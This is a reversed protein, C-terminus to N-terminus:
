NLTKKQSDTVHMHRKEAVGRRVRLALGRQFVQMEKATLVAKGVALVSCDGNVVTVEDQPRIATGAYVIHKAFVSKGKAVFASVDQYVIVRLSTRKTRALRRAGDISLSFVGDTPRLTGLLRNKLTVYRIRGTKTSLITKVNSPFLVKGVGRGFQYDAIKRIKELAEQSRKVSPM